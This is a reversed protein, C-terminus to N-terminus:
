IAIESSLQELVDPHTAMLGILWTLASSATDFGATFLLACTDHIEQPTLTASGTTPVEDCAALLMDLVDHRADGGKTKDTRMKIHTSILTNITRLHELKAARGPYPLWRPPIFALVILAMRALFNLEKADEISSSTTRLSTSFFVIMVPPHM